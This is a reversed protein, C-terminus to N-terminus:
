RFCPGAPLRQAADGIPGDTGTEPGPSEAAAQRTMVSRDGTDACGCAFATRVSWRSRTVSPWRSMPRPTGTSATCLSRSAAGRDKPRGFRGSRAWWARWGSLRRAGTPALSWGASPSPSAPSPRPRGPTDFLLLSGLIFAIIGGIGLVGFSPLFLESVLLALGLIILALGSYNIPLVQLAAMGLLLCITGAVGPFFVGPHTFEVYLGLVGAMLLLYAINPNALIDLIKQRLRMDYRQVNADETALEVERGAVEVKRGNVKRLLDPISDAVLDVVGEKVAEQETISVSERVAKEAWEVNRGREQAITRSLSAAFNEVKERMDGSINEGQGGVPHAAGINTGPAMAAVNAALTVFVGASTAGAGSPAVYVIIPVPAGLIDKVISKASDLLGGPTDLQIVVAQAGEQRGREIGDHIYDATAPNIMGDVVLLVIERGPQRFPEAQAKEQVVPTTKEARVGAKQVASGPSERGGATIPLLLGCLLLTWLRHRRNM